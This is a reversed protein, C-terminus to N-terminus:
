MPISGVFRRTSIVANSTASLRMVPWPFFILVSYGFEGQYMNTMFHLYQELPTKDFGYKQRLHEVAEPPIRPDGMLMESFPDGTSRALFFICSM